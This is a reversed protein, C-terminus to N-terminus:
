GLTGRAYSIIKRFEDAHKEVLRLTAATAACIQVRKELRELQEPTRRIERARARNIQDQLALRHIEVENIQDPLPIATM